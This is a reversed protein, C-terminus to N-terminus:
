SNVRSRNCYKRILLDGQFVKISHCVSTQASAPRIFRLVYLGLEDFDSATLIKTITGDEFTVGGVILDVQLTVDPLVPSALIESAVM